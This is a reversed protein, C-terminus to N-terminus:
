EVGITWKQGTPENERIKPYNQPNNRMDVELLLDFFEVLRDLEETTFEAIQQNNLM